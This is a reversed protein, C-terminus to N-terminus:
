PAVSDFTDITFRAPPGTRDALGRRARLDREHAEVDVGLRRQAVARTATQRAGVALRALQQAPDGLPRV